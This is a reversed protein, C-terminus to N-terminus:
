NVWGGRDEGNGKKPTDDPPPIYNGHEDFRVGRDHDRM